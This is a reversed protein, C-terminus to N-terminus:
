RSLKLGLLVWTEGQLKIVHPSLLPFFPFFFLPSAFLSRLSASRIVSGDASDQVAALEVPLQSLPIPSPPPPFSFPTTRLLPPPPTCPQPCLPPPLSSSLSCSCASPSSLFPHPTPPHRPSTPLMLRQSSNGGTIQHIYKADPYFHPWLIFAGCVCRAIFIHQLHTVPHILPEGGGELLPASVCSYTSCTEVAAIGGSQLGCCPQLPWITNAEACRSRPSSLLAHIDSSPPLPEQYFVSVSSPLGPPMKRMKKPQSELPLFVCAM